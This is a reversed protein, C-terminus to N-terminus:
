AGTASTRRLLVSERSPISVAQSQLIPEAGCFCLNGPLSQFLGVGRLCADPRLLVSERSPISVQSVWPVSRMIAASACIGQFPNFRSDLITSLYRQRLLVSERSPISVTGVTMRRQRLLASERSPISVGIRDRPRAASACVGQFPNFRM